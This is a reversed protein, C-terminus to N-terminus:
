LEEYDVNVAPLMAPAHTSRVYSVNEDPLMVPAHTGREYAVNESVLLKPTVNEQISNSVYASQAYAVNESVLPQPTVKKHVSIKRVYRRYTVLVVVVVMVGTGFISICLSGVIGAVCGVGCVFPQTTVDTYCYLLLLKYVIMTEFAYVHVSARYNKSPPRTQKRDHLAINTM